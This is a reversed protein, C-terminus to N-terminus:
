PKPIEVDIDDEDEEIDTKYRPEIVFEMDQLFENHREQMKHLPM